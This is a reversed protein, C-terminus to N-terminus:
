RGEEELRRLRELVQATTYWKDSQERRRLEEESVQPELPSYKEPDLKPRFYGIVKGHNDCVEVSGTLEALRAITDEDLVIRSM